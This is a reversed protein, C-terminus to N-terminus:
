TSDEWSTSVDQLPAGDALKYLAERVLEAREARHTHKRVGSPLWTAAFLGVDEPDLGLVRAAADDVRLLEGTERDRVDSAYHDAPQEWELEPSLQVAWGAVCHLSGCKDEHDIRFATQMYREPEAAIADGVKRLMAENRM